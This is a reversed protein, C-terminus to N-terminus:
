RLMFSLRSRRSFIPNVTTRTPERYHPNNVAAWQTNELESVYKAYERRDHVTTLLKWILITLIVLFLTTGSIGLVIGILNIAASCEKTEVARLIVSGREEQYTFVFSCGSDDPIKCYKEEFSLSSESISDVREPSPISCNLCLAGAYRGTDHVMCEICDAFEKCRGGTCTMNLTPKCDGCYKGSREEECECKGCVCKGVGSCVKDEGPALCSTQMEPCECADGTWGPECECKGCSCRGRGPGSCLLGNHRRCSFNDCQCHVGYFEEHGEFECPCSCFVEIDLQLKENIGHPSINITTNWIDKNLNPPCFKATIDIDFTVPVTAKIENCENTRIQEGESCNSYYIIGIGRSGADDLLKVSKEFKNYVETIINIINTANTSLIEMRSGQIHKALEQYQKSYTSTVAFIINIKNKIAQKNIQSITPYDYYFRLFNLHSPLVKGDGAIHYLDDTTFVLLHRADPRWKIKETCVIAQMLADLGGEPSDNNSSVPTERLKTAFIDPNNDLPMHNKFSYPSVCKYQQCSKELTNRDTFVFPMRVKDVFSGFGLRFNKTVNNMAYALKQGLKSIENKHGRMTKSMDLLYYLDIPYDDSRRFVVRITKTEGVRLKLKVHQPYLQSKDTGNNVIQHGTKPGWAFGKCWSGLAKNSSVCRSKESDGTSACWHCDPTRLCSGCDTLSACRRDQPKPGEEEAWVAAWMALVLVFSTRMELGM